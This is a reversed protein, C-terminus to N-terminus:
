QIIKNTIRLIIAEDENSLKWSNGLLKTVAEDWDSYQNTDSRYDNKAVYGDEYLDDVLQQKERDTMDWLIDEIEINISAM